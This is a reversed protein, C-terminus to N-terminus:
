RRDARRRRTGPQPPGTCRLAFSLQRLRHSRGLAGEHEVAHGVGPLLQADVYPANAFLAACDRATTESVVWLKDWEGVAYQVPVTVEASVRPCDGPWSTAVEVLDASPTAAHWPALASTSGKSESTQTSLQIAGSAEKTFEIHPIPPLSQWVDVLFPPVSATIGTISIGLLPWSPQRAALYVAVAAGISHGFVVTGPRGVGRREWLEDMAADIVEAQRAFGAQEDDLPESDAYGPRNLAIAPFGNAAALDVVSDERAAFYRASVGGGHLLLLLPRDSAASATAFGTLTIREGEVELPELEPRLVERVYMLDM